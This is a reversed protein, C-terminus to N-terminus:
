NVQNSTEMALEGKLVQLMDDATSDVIGNQNNMLEDMMKGNILMEDMTKDFNQLNNSMMEFNPNNSYNLMQTMKDFSGMIAQNNQMSKMNSAIFEMKLGMRQISM